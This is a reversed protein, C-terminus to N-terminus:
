CRPAPHRPRGVRADRCAARRLARADTGSHCGAGCRPGARRVADCTFQHVKNQLEDNEKGFAMLEHLKKELEKNKDRLALMQRESLSITRGGYPHPIAIGALMEAHNEFFQPQEQLYSAIDEERMDTKRVTM